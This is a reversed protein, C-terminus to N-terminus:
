PTEPPDPPAPLTGPLLKQALAKTMGHKDFAAVHLVQYTNGANDVLIDPATTSGDGPSIASPTYFAQVDSLRVGEPLFQADATAAPQIIGSLTSDLYTTSVIGGTGVTSTPRRRTFTTGGLDPDTLLDSVNIRM